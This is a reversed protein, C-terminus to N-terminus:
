RCARWFGLETMLTQRKSRTDTGRLQQELADILEDIKQRRILSAYQDLTHM